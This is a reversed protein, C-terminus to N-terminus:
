RSRSNPSSIQTSLSASVQRDSGPRCNRESDSPSRRRSSVPIRLCIASHCCALRITNSTAAPESCPQSSIAILDSRTKTKTRGPSIWDASRRNRANSTVARPQRSLILITHSSSSPQLTVGQTGSSRSKQLRSNLTPSDCYEERQPRTSDLPMSRRTCERRPTRMPTARPPPAARPMDCRPTSLARSCFPMTTSM